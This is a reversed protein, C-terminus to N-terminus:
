DENNSHVMQIKYRQQFILKLTPTPSIHCSNMYIKSTCVFIAHVAHPTVCANNHVSVFGTMIPFCIYYLM